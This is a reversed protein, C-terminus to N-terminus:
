LSIQNTNLRRRGRIRSHINGYGLWSSETVHQEIRTSFEDDPDLEEGHDLLYERFRQIAQTTGQLAAETTPGRFTCGLLDIVHVMTTKRRPSSELLPPYETM